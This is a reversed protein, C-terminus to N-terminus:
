VTKEGEGLVVTKTLVMNKIIYRETLNNQTELQHNKDDMELKLSRYQERQKYTRDPFCKVDSFKSSDPLSNLKKKITLSLFKTKDSLNRFEVNLPQTKGVPINRANIRFTKVIKNRDFDLKLERSLETIFDIDDMEEPVGIFVVRNRRIYQNQLERESLKHSQSINVSLVKNELERLKENTESIHQDMDERKLSVRQIFVTIINSFLM